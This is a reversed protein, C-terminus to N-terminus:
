RGIGLFVLGLASTSFHYTTRFVEAMTTLLLYLFGYVIALYISLCCIVKSSTFMTAPRLVAKTLTSSVPLQLRCVAGPFLWKSKMQRFPVRRLIKMKYSEQLFPLFAMECAGAAIAATWFTWRWGKVQSLYGGIVPGTTPGLLPAMYVITIISGREEPIFMDGIINPNLVMSAVSMGTLFRFLIILGLSGSLAGGVSALVFCINAVNYVPRRGYLESLPAIVLPGFVEGLEFVSVLITGYLANDSSFDTLIDPVAPVCMITALTRHLRDIVQNASKQVVDRVNHPEDDVVPGSYM